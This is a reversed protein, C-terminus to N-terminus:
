CRQKFWGYVAAIHGIWVLVAKFLRFNTPYNNGSEDKTQARVTIHM